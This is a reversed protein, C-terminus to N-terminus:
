ALWAVEFFQDLADVREVPVRGTRFPQSIEVLPQELAVRVLCLAPSPLVERRTREDLAHNSEDLRLRAFDHLVGRGARASEEDNGVAPDLPLGVIQEREVFRPLTKLPAVREM